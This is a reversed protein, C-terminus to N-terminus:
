KKRKHEQLLKSINFYTSDFTKYGKFDDPLTGNYFDRGFIFCIQDPSGANNDTFLFGLHLKRTKGKKLKFDGYQGTRKVEDEKLYVLPIFRNKSPSYQDYQNVHFMKNFIGTDAYDLTSGSFKNEADINKVEVELELIYYGDELEGTSANIVDDYGTKVAHGANDYRVTDFRFDELGQYNITYKKAGTAYVNDYLDAKLLRYALRGSSGEYDVLDITTFEDSFQVPHNAPLNMKGKDEAMVREKGPKVVGSKLEHGYIKISKIEKIDIPTDFCCPMFNNQDYDKGFYDNFVRIGNRETYVTGDNMTIELSPQSDSQLSIDLIKGTGAGASFYIFWPNIGVDALTQDLPEAYYDVQYIEEPLTYFCPSSHKVNFTFDFHCTIINESNHSLGSQSITFSTNEGFFGSEINSISDGGYILLVTVSHEDHEIVQFIGGSESVVAKDKDSLSRSKDVDIADDIIWGFPRDGEFMEDTLVLVDPAFEIKETVYLARGDCLGQMLTVTVGNDAATQNIDFLASEYNEESLSHFLQGFSKNLRGASVAAGLGAAAVTAALLVAAIKRRMGLTKKGTAGRVNAEEIFQSDVNGLANLIEYSKRNKNM